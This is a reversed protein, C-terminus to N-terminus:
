LFHRELHEVLADKTPFVLGDYIPHDVTIWEQRGDRRISRVEFVLDGDDLWAQWSNETLANLHLKRM